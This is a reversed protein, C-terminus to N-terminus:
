FLNLVASIEFNKKGIQRNQEPHFSSVNQVCSQPGHSPITLFYISKSKSVFQTMYLLSMDPALSLPTEVCLPDREPSFSCIM